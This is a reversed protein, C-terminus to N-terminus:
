ECRASRQQMSVTPIIGERDGGCGLERDWDRGLQYQAVGVRWCPAPSCLSEGDRGVGLVREQTQAEGSM